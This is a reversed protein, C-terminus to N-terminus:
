SKMCKNQTDSILCVSNKRARKRQPKEEEEEDQEEDEVAIDEEEQDGNEEDHEDWGEDAGLSFRLKKKVSEGQGKKTSPRGRKVASGTKAASASAKKASGRTGRKGRSSVLVGEDDEDVALASDEGGEDHRGFDEDSAHRDEDHDEEDGDEGRARRRDEEIEKKTRFHVCNHEFM